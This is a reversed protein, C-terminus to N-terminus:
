DEMYKFNVLDNMVEKIEEETYNYDALIEEVTWPKSWDVKPIVKSLPATSDINMSTFLKCYFKFGKESYMFAAFNNKEVSSNFTIIYKNLKGVTSNNKCTKEIYDIDISKEYNWKYEYTNKSYAFHKHNIDRHGILITNENSPKTKFVLDQSSNDIAYHVELRM